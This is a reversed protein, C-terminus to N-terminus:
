KEYECVVNKGSKKATYLARDAREVLDKIKDGDKPYISIGISITVRVKEDYAKFVTDEIKKRIREAVLKAGDPGTEPLMLAFEEGGYRSVLDIERVSERMIRGIDRLIVDGVLHGYTDNCQKFNDIDSMLFAFKFKYRKSRQAEENM